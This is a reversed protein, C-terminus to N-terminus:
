AKAPVTWIFDPCARERSVGTFAEFAVAHHAPVYGQRKWDNVTQKSVGLASAVAKQSGPERFASELEPNTM